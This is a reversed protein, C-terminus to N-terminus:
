PKLIVKTAERANFLAYGKPAEDLPLTHSIIVTPDVRGHRVLSLVEEWHGQVNCLGGKLTVNKIWLDGLPLGVRDEIFVGVVCVTGAPRVLRLASELAAENGVCEMVVDAGRWETAELIADLPDQESANVAISGTSAALKLRSPELDIGYVAAAGLIRASIQAFIGVPGCGVVAVVDGPKVGGEVACFYGTTLIDGAFIAQEDSLGNPVNILTFDANPVLVYEAQSGALDGFAYGCGFIRGGTCKNLLGRRCFWCLGCSSMFSGVVRDEPQFGRVGDGTEEIVGVFEHGLIFGPEMPARGHYFHLDTGCIAGTTVRVLADTSESMQPKPREEVQVQGPGQFVVAKM